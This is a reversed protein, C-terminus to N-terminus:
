FLRFRLEARSTGARLIEGNDTRMMRISLPVSFM